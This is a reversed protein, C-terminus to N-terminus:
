LPHKNPNLSAHQLEEIIIRSKSITSLEERLRECDVGLGSLLLCARTPIAMIRKLIDLTTLPYGAEIDSLGLAYEAEEDLHPTANGNNIQPDRREECMHRELHSFTLGHSGLIDGLIKSERFVELLLNSTDIVPNESERAHREANRLLTYIGLSLYGRQEASFQSLLSPVGIGESFGEKAVM